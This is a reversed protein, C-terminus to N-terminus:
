LEKKKKGNMGNKGNQKGPLIGESSVCVTLAAFLLVCGLIEEAKMPTKLFVVDSLVAFVSELCMILAALAPPTRSQGLIQLTYGIVCSVVASYWIGGSAALVDSVTPREFIMMLVCGIVGGVFFQACSLWVGDTKPAFRDVSLIHFTFIFACVLTLLDGTSFHFDRLIGEWGASFDAVCLLYLGVAAVAVCPWTLIPVRRRFFLGVLPVFIVYIATIFGSKGASTGLIIGWQQFAGAFFVLVGCIGGGLLLARRSERDRVTAFLRGKNKVAIVPLLLLSGLLMRVGNFTLSGITESVLDQAVFTTGWVFAAALLLLPGLWSRRKAAPRNENM